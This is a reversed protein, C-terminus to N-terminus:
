GVVIAQRMQAQAVHYAQSATQAADKADTAREEASQLATIAEYVKPALPRTERLAYRAVLITRDNVVTVLLTDGDRSTLARPGDTCGYRAELIGPHEGLLMRNWDSATMDDVSCIKVGDWFELFTVGWNRSVTIKLM